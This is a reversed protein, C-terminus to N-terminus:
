QEQFTNAFLDQQTASLVMNLLKHHLMIIPSSFHICTHIVPDGYKVTSFFQIPSIVIVFKFIFNFFATSTTMLLFM